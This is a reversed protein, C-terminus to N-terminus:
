EPSIGWGTAPDEEHQQYNSRRRVSSPSLAALWNIPLREWDATPCFVCSYGTPHFLLLPLILSWPAQTRLRRRLPRTQSSRPWVLSLHSLCLNVSRSTGPTTIFDAIFVNGSYEMKKLKCDQLSFLSCPMMSTYHRSSRCDAPRFLFEEPSSGPTWGPAWVSWLQDAWWRLLSDKVSSPSIRHENM